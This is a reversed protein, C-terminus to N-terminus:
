RKKNGIKEAQSLESAINQTVGLVENGPAQVMVAGSVQDKLEHPPPVRGQPNGLQSILNAAISIDPGIRMM